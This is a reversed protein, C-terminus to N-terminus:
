QVWKILEEWLLFNYMLVFFYYLCFYNDYRITKPINRSPFGNQRTSYYYWHYGIFVILILVLFLFIFNERFWGKKYERKVLVKTGEITVLSEIHNVVELECSAVDIGFIYDLFIISALDIGIFNQKIIDRLPKLRQQDYVFMRSGKVFLLEENRGCGALRDVCIPEVRLQKTWSENIGYENMVWINCIMQFGSCIVVALSEKMVFPFWEYMENGDWDFEPLEICRCVEDRIGFSIILNSVAVSTAGRWHLAGNIFARSFSNNMVTGLVLKDKRRWSNTRLSYVDVESYVKGGVMKSSFIRVLKYDNSKADDGFGLGISVDIDDGLQYSNLEDFRDPKPLKKFESTAPNFLFITDGLKSVNLCLVGNCSGVIRFPARGHEKTFPITIKLIERYTEYSVLSILCKGGFTGGRRTIALYGNNSLASQHNVHKTIFIPDRIIAYWSKCVCKFQLLSKVPLRAFVDMLVDEPLDNLMASLM